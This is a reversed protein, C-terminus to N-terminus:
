QGQRHRQSHEVLLTQMLGSSPQSEHGLFTSMRLASTRAVEGLSWVVLAPTTALAKIAVRLDLGAAENFSVRIDMCAERNRDEARGFIESGDNPVEGVVTGSPTNWVTRGALPYTKRFSRRRDSGYQCYWFSGCIVAPIKAATNRMKSVKAVSDGRMRTLCPLFRSAL